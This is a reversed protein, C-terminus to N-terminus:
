ARLPDDLLGRAALDFPDIAIQIVFTEAAYRVEREATIRLM